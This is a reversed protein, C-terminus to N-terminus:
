DDSPTRLWGRRMVMQGGLQWAVHLALVSALAALAIPGARPGLVLAVGLFPLGAWAVRRLAAARDAHDLLGLLAGLLWISAPVLLLCAAVTM